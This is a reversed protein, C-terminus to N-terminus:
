TKGTLRISELFKEIDANKDEQAHTFVQMTLIRDGEMIVQNRVMAEGGRIAIKWIRAQHGKVMVTGDYQLEGNLDHVSGELILDLFLDRLELSDEPFTGDPYDYYSVHYLYNGSADATDRYFFHHQTIEGMITSISKEQYESSGPALFRIQGHDLSRWSWEQGDLTNATLSLLLIFLIRILKLEPYM